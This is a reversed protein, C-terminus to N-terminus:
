SQTSIGKEALVQFEEWSLKEGKKLKEMARQELESRLVNETQKKKEEEELRSENRLRNLEDMTKRIEDQVPKLKEKTEVFVAHKADAEKKLEKMATIKKQLSEHIEQSRGAKEKLEEHYGGSETDLSKVQTRLDSIKEKLQKIRKHTKLQTELERAKEVLEKEEELSLSSTQIEWEINDFEQQLTQPNGAPRRKTQINSISDQVNRIEEIKEHVRSRPQARMKRLEQVSANLEDRQRRLEDIETRSTKVRENLADREGARKDMEVILIEKEDRLQSLKQNLENIKEQRASTETPGGDLSRYISNIPHKRM